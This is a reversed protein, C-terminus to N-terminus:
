PSRSRGRASSAAAARILEAGSSKYAQLHLEIERDVMEQKRSRVKHM